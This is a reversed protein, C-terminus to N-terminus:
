KIFYSSHVHAGAQVTVFYIGPPYSSTQISSQQTSPQSHHFVVGSASAVTIERVEAESIENFCVTVEAILADYRIDVSVSPQIASTAKAKHVPRPNVNEQSQRVTRNGSGDYSFVVRRALVGTAVSAALVILSIRFYPFALRM